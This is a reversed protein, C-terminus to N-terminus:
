FMSFSCSRIVHHQDKLFYQNILLDNDPILNVLYFNFVYKNEVNIRETRVFSINIKMPHIHLVEFYWQNDGETSKPEPIDLTGDFLQRYIISM